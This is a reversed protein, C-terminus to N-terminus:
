DSRFAEPVALHFPPIRVFVKQGNADVGHFSGHARASAATVHYSNYSFSEGVGLTPTQGVIRDGEIVLQNGDAHEVIWKRGLLTVARDSDNRITLHYIFAHPQGPPLHEPDHRYEVRDLVVALGPLEISPDM